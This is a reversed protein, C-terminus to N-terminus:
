FEFDKIHPTIAAELDLENEGDDDNDQDGEGVEAFVGKFYKQKRTITNEPTIDRNRRNKANIWAGITPRPNWDELDPMNFRIYLYKNETEVLLRSRQQTKLLNSASICREVDASHPTAAYIRSLVIILEKYTTSVDTSKSLLLILNRLSLKRYTEIQPSECVETFQTFLSALDIDPAVLAHLKSLDATSSLEAFPKIVALLNEDSSFRVNLFKDLSELIEERIIEFSRYRHQRTETIAILEIEKLFVKGDEFKLSSELKSEFGGLLKTEKIKSFMMLLNKVHTSLLIITLRDDQLKEQFRKYLFLVDGLFTILKLNTFNTIFRLFGACQANQQNKTFYLALAHWSVLFNNVLQFTFATWRVAFLKPLNLRKIGHTEAIKKLESM